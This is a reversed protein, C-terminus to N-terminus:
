APTITATQIIIAIFVPILANSLVIAILVVALCKIIRPIVTPVIVRCRVGREALLGGTGACYDLFISFVAAGTAGSDLLVRILLFWASISKFFCCRLSTCTSISCCLWRPIILVFSSIFRLFPTILIHSPTLLFVLSFFLRSRLLSIILLWLLLLIFSTVDSLQFFLFHSLGLQM